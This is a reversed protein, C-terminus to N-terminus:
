VLLLWAFPFLWYCVSTPPQFNASYRSKALELKSWILELYYLKLSVLPNWGLRWEVKSSPQIEEGRGLWLLSHVKGTIETFHNCTLKSRPILLLRSVDNPKYCTCTFGCDVTDFCPKPPCRGPESCGVPSASATFALAAISFIAARFFHM